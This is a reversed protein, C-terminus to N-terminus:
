RAARYRSRRAAQTVGGDRPLVLGDTPGGNWAPMIKMPADLQGFPVWDVSRDWETAPEVIAWRQPELSIACDLDFYGIWSLYRAQNTTGDVLILANDAPGSPRAEKTVRVVERNHPDRVPDSAIGMLEGHVHVRTM